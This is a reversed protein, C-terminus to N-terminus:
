TDTIFAYINQMHKIQFSLKIPNIVQNYNRHM